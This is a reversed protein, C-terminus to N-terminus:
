SLPRAGYPARPNFNPCLLRRSCRIRDHGTRPVHTSILATRTASLRGYTTGRVPCTPQFIPAAHSLQAMTTTGRVPCTPQFIINGKRGSHATRDHGTRPVHTSIGGARQGVGRGSRRAGYPARPNFDSTRSDGLHSDFTTGRVPCTPQFVAPRTQTRIVREDHGTRPVHTSIGDPHLQVRRIRTTGRVPCTPQFRM